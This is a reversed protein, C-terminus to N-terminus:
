TALKGVSTAILRVFNVSLQWTAQRYCENAADVNGAKNVPAHVRNGRVKAVVM